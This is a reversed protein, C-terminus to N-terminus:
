GTSSASPPRARRGARGGPAPRPRAGPRVPRRGGAPVRARRRHVGPTLFGFVVAGLDRDQVRLPLCATGPVREVDRDPGDRPLPVVVARRGGAVGPHRRAGRGVAPARAQDGPPHVARRDSRAVRQLAPRDPVRRRHALLCRGRRRRAATGRHDLGPLRDRVSEAAVSLEAALRQLALPVGVSTPRLTPRHLLLLVGDTVPVCGVVLDPAPLAGAGPARHHYAADVAALLPPHPLADRVPRGIVDGVLRRAAPNVVFSSTSPPRRHRRAAPRDGVADVLAATM